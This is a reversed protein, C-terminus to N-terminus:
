PASHQESNAVIIGRALCAADINEQAFGNPKESLIKQIAPRQKEHDLRPRDCRYGNRERFNRPTKAV